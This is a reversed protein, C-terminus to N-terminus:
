EPDKSTPCNPCPPVINYRRFTEATRFTTSCTPCTYLAQKLNRDQERRSTYRPSM